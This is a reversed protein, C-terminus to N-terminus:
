QNHCANLALISLDHAAGTSAITSLGGTGATPQPPHCCAALGLWAHVLFTALIGLVLASLRRTLLGLSAALGVGMFHGTLPALVDSLVTISGAVAVVLALNAGCLVLWALRRNATHRRGAVVVVGVIAGWYRQGVDILRVGVM